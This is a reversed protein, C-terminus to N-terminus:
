GGTLLFKQTISASLSPRNEERLLDMIAINQIPFDGDKLPSFDNCKYYYVKSNSAIKLLYEVVKILMIDEEQFGYFYELLCFIRHEDYNPNKYVDVTYGFGKWLMSLDQELIKLELISEFEFTASDSM